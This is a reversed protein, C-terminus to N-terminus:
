RAEGRLRLLVDNMLQSLSSAIDERERLHRDTVSRLDHIEERLKACESELSEVQNRLRENEYVFSRLRECEQEAARATTQLREHDHLISLVAGLQSQGEELWRVVRERAEVNVAGSM